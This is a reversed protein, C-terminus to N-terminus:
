DQIWIVVSADILLSSILFLISDNPLTESSRQEQNLTNRQLDLLQSTSNGHVFADVAYSQELQRRAITGYEGATCFLFLVCAIVGVMSANGRRNDPHVARFIGDAAFVSAILLLGGDDIAAHFRTIYLPAFSVLATGLLLLLSTQKREKANRQM